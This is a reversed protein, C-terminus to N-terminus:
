GSPGEVFREFEWDSADGWGYITYKEEIWATELWRTFSVSQSERRETRPFLLFVERRRLDGVQPHKKSWRM